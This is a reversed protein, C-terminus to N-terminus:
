VLRGDERLARALATGVPLVEPLLARAVGASGPQSMAQDFRTWARDLDHRAVAIRADVALAGPHHPRRILARQNLREAQAVQGHELYLAARRVLVDPAGAPASAEGIIQPRPDGSTLEPLYGGGTMWGGCGSAGLLALVLALVVRSM